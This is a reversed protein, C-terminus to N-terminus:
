PKLHTAYTPTQLINLIKKATPTIQYEPPSLIQTMEEITHWEIKEIEQQHPIFPGQHFTKFISCFENENPFTFLKKFIFQPQWITIGLEERAERIAADIYDEGRDVHGSVSVTWLGPNIDKTTSRKQWLLQNEQNFILLFIARHILNPNSNCEKRTAQGIIQDNQDVIDFIEQLNDSIM